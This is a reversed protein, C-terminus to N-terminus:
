NHSKSARYDCTDKLKQINDFSLEQPLSYPLPLYYGKGLDAKRPHKPPIQRAHAYSDRIYRELTEVQFDDLKEYTIKGTVKDKKTKGMVKNLLDEVPKYKVDFDKSNRKKYFFDEIDKVREMDRGMMQIEALKGDGMDVTMHIATYGSERAKSSIAPFQNAKHCTLEFADLTKKSVYSEKPTMRYNEVELVNLKGSTVMKGLEKFVRDFDKQSSSKLVIRVGIVDGMKFIEKKQSLKRPPVKQLISEAKKVRGHLGLTGRLVPLDPNTDSETVNRLGKKLDAMLKKLNNQCEKNIDMGMQYTIKGSMDSSDLSKAKSYDEEEVIETEKKKRTGCFSVCDHALPALASSGKFNFVNANYSKIGFSSLYNNNNLQPRYPTILINM